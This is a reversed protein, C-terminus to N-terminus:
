SGFEGKLVEMGLESLGKMPDVVAFKFFAESQADRPNAAWTRILSTEGERGPLQGIDQLMDYADRTLEWQRALGGQPALQLVMILLIQCLSVQDIYRLTERLKRDVAPGGVARTGASGGGHADDDYDIAAGSAATNSLLKAVLFLGKVRIPNFPPKYRYADCATAALCATALAAPWDQRDAHLVAIDVVLQPLPSVAWLDLSVLPECALYRARLMSTQPTPTSSKVISDCQATAEESIARAADARGAKNTVAPHAAVNAVDPAVSMGNIDTRPSAACAQYVNLDDTCRLCRCQFNYTELAHRRSSRPRTYDTYSIEIEDGAQIHTEARLVINRGILQIMANPMCSHNMMALTPEIFVAVQGMDPDAWNFANTQIKCMIECAKKINDDDTELGAYACAATAMMEVDPWQAGSRWAEVHSELDALGDKVRTSEEGEAGGEVKERGKGKAKSKSSTDGVGLLVQMLLRVPTPLDGRGAGHVEALPKCERSHAAKWHARQCDAGCYRASQCRTCARLSGTGGTRLCYTCVTTAHSLSPLLLPPSTILITAGPAVTRTSVLARGKTPSPRVEVAASAASM